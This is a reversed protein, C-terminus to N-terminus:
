APPRHESPPNNLKKGCTKCFVSDVPIESDCYECYTGHEEIEARSSELEHELEDRRDYEERMEAMELEEQRDHEERAEAMMQLTHEDLDQLTMAHSIRMPRPPRYLGDSSGKRESVFRELRGLFSKAHKERKRERDLYFARWKEYSEDHNETLL